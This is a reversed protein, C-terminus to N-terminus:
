RKEGIMNVIIKRPLTKHAMRRRQARNLADVLSRAELPGIRQTKGGKFDYHVEYLTKKGRYLSLNLERRKKKESPSLKLPQTEIRTEIPTEDLTQETTTELTLRPTQKSTTEVIEKVDQPTLEGLGGLIADLEQESLEEETIGIDQALETKEKLSMKSLPKDLNYDAIDKLLENPKPLTGSSYLALLAKTSLDVKDGYKAIFQKYIDPTVKPPLTQYIYVDEPIVSAGATYAEPNEIYHTVRKNLQEFLKMGEPTKWFEPDDIKTLQKLEKIQASSLKKPATIKGKLKNFKKIAARGTKTQLAKGVLYSAAMDQVSPTLVAGLTQYLPARTDRKEAGMSGTLGLTAWRIGGGITETVAYAARNYAENINKPKFDDKAALGKKELATKVELKNPYNSKDYFGQIIDQYLIKPKTLASKKPKPPKPPGTTVGKVTGQKLTTEKARKSAKEKVRQVRKTSERRQEITAKSGLGQDSKMKEAQESAKLASAKAKDRQAQLAAQDQERKQEISL